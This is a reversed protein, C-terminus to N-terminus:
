APLELYAKMAAVTEAPHTLHPCHGTVPLLTLTSGKLHEHCYRGVGVPAVSDHEIQLVLAPVTVLALDARNDGLFAAAAFRRSIMPDAACFSARLEDAHTAKPQEGIVVQSLHDAWGVLNREMMEALGDVDEREFGGVYHPPDNLYRPSPGIMVLRSFREPCRISALAGIMASVSHGVFVMDRLDLAEALAVVDEAYGDLTAHRQMDYARLDSRGCGIHDFRIVRHTAEFAPVVFRWMQQDCGFGHAFLMPQGGRGSETVHHLAIAQDATM